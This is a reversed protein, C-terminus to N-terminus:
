LEMGDEKMIIYVMLLYKEMIINKEMSRKGIKSYVMSNKKVQTM